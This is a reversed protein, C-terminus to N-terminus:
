AKLCASLEAEIHDMRQAAQDASHDVTELYCKLKPETGSPRIVVRDGAQSILMIGPTSPLGAYREALDYCSVVPSGALSKPPDAIVNALTSSINESCTFRLTLPRTLYVSYLQDIEHAFEALDRRAALDAVRLCASIGDKDRVWEPDTCYGLAEEYGFTLHPTRGIWKFGTLTPRFSLGNRRAIQELIRSSVISCALVGDGDRRRACDEGLLAGVRDGSLQVWEGGQPIAVSCRDADPDLALILQADHRQATAIALDLAGQEEPNPFDVTPFDPNPEQQEAVPYVNHFGCRRLVTELVKGGVGHMATIVIPLDRQEHPILSCVRSYYAELLEEGQRTILRSDRDIEDAEPSQAIAEAIEQDAPSILQVGREEDSEVVRGGLYVKYGNDQPPNHSATIMVGADANLYRVAFATVPTPLQPTLSEVHCGAASLVQCAVRHFDASGHRADCGVVVRPQPTKGTLWRALGFSARAITAHNLYSEGAGIRSRLGATGFVLPGSFRAQLEAHRQDPDALELIESLEKRTAPDPDHAIWHRARHLLEQERSTM